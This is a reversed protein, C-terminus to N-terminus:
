CTQFLDRKKTLWTICIEYLCKSLHWNGSSKLAITLSFLVKTTIGYRIVSRIMYVIEIKLERQLISLRSIFIFYQWPKTFWLSILMVQRALRLYCQVNHPLMLDYCSVCRDLLFDTVVYVQSLICTSYFFSFFISDHPNDTGPPCWWKNANIQEKM